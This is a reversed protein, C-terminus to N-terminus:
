EGRPQETSSALAAGRFVVFVAFDGAMPVNITEGACKGAFVPKGFMDEPNMLRFSDGPKLLGAVKVDVKEAKPFNFIALNARDADYKNPLLVVLPAAPAEKTNGKEDAKQVQELKLDAGVILNNHIEAQEYERILMSSKFLVNDDIVCDKGNKIEMPMQYLYNKRVNINLAQKAGGVLFVGKSYAINDEIVFNRLFGGETYAHLTYQGNGNRTSLVCNSIHKVGENNQTYIAHGHHRDPAKWGNNVIVCGYFESDIAGVWFGSGGSPNDHIYFNIYKCGKGANVTLGGGAPSLNSPWSGTQSTEYIPQTGPAPAIEFDYMQIYDAPKNVIVDGDLWVREGKAPRIVIPAKETGALKVEFTPRRGEAGAVCRYIGGRVWITDGPQVKKQSGNLASFIDWPEAMTGEADAKGNPAVYYGAQAKDAKAGEQAAVSGAVFALAVIAVFVSIRM